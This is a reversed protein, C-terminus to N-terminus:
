RPAEDPCGDEDKYGNVTEATNPCSDEEDEVGDGDNDTEPCGDSDAYGDFDEAENPCKDLRDYIGDFDNDFDPCGDRDEYGDRDEAKDPCMDNRDEVGDGDSDVAIAALQKENILGVPAGDKGLDDLPSDYGAIVTYSAGPKAPFAPDKGINTEDVVAYYNYPKRNGYFCNYVIRSRRSNESVHVGFQKNNYLINNRVLVGCKNSLMVGSYGNESIINHEIATHTGFSILECFVGSWQNGAIINNRIHPLSIICQVGTKDNERIVNRQIIMNTNESLIGVGGREITLNEVISHNAAVIVPDKRNGRLVTGDVNEGRLVVRDPLVLNERYLGVGVLVTDGAGAEDLAKQISRFEAPVAITRAPAARAAVIVACVVPALVAFSTRRM